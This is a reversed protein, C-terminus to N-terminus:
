SGVPRSGGQAHEFHAHRTWCRYYLGRARRDSPNVDPKQRVVINCIRRGYTKKWETFTVWADGSLQFLSGFIPIGTPGPPLRGKQLANLKQTVYIIALFAVVAWTISKSSRLHTLLLNGLLDFSTLNVNYPSSFISFIGM